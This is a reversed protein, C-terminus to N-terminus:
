LWDCVFSDHCIFNRAYGHAFLIWFDSSGIEFLYAIAVVDFFSYEFSRTTQVAFLRTADRSARDIDADRIENMLQEQTIKRFRGADDGLVARQWTNAPTDARLLVLAFPGADQADFPFRDGDSFEFAEDSIPLDFVFVLHRSGFDLTVTVFYSDDAAARRTQGAGAVQGTHSVGYFNELSKM